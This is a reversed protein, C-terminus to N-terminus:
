ELESVVEAPDRGEAIAQDISEFLRNLRMEEEETKEEYPYEPGTLGSQTTFSDMAFLEIALIEQRELQRLEIQYLIDEETGNRSFGHPGTIQWAWNHIQIYQLSPCKSKALKAYRMAIQKPREVGPWLSSAKTPYQGTKHSRSHLSLQTLNQLNPLHSSFQKWIQKKM